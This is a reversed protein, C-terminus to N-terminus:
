LQEGSGLLKGSKSVTIICVQGEHGKLHYTDSLDLLSKIVIVSGLAYIIFNDSPHVVFTNNFKQQQGIVTRLELEYSATGNSEM